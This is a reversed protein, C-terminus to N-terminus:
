SPQVFPTKLDEWILLVWYTYKVGLFANWPWFLQTWAQTETLHKMAQPIESGRPHSRSLNNTTFRKSPSQAPDRELFISRIYDSFVPSRLRSHCHSNACRLWPYSFIAASTILRLLLPFPLFSLERGNYSIFVWCPLTCLSNLPKCLTLQHPLNLNIWWLSFPGTFIHSWFGRIVRLRNFISLFLNLKKIQQAVYSMLSIDPHLPIFAYLCNHSTVMVGDARIGSLLLVEIM